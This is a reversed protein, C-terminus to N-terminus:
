VVSKRDRWITIPAVLDSPVSVTSMCIDTPTAAPVVQAPIPPQSAAEEEEEEEENLDDAGYDHHLPHHIVAVSIPRYGKCRSPFPVPFSTSLFNSGTGRLAEGTLRGASVLQVLVAGCM